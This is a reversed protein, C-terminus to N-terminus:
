QQKEEKEDEFKEFRKTFSRPLYSIFWMFLDYKSEQFVVIASRTEEEILNGQNDVQPYSRSMECSSHERVIIASIMSTMYIVTLFYLVLANIFTWIFGEFLLVNDISKDLTKFLTYVFSSLLTSYRTDNNGYISMNFLSCGFITGMWYLSFLLLMGAGSQINNLAKDIFKLINRLLSITKFMSLFVCFSDFFVMSRYQRALSSMILFEGAVKADSIESIKWDVTGLLKTTNTFSILQCCIIAVDIYLGYFNQWSAVENASKKMTQSVVINVIMWLCFFCRFGQVIKVFLIKDDSQLGFIKFPSIDIITGELNSDASDGQEIVTSVDIFYDTEQHYFTSSIVSARSTNDLLKGTIAKRKIEELFSKWDSQQYPNFCNYYGENLLYRGYRGNVIENTNDIGGQKTLYTFFPLVVGGRTKSDLNTTQQQGLDM